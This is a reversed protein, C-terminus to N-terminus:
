VKEMWVEVKENKIKFEKKEGFRQKPEALSIEMHANVKEEIESKFMELKKKLESSCKVFLRIEDLKELGAEKRLQQVNRMLERSYGEAELEETREKNLYVFGNKFEAEQYLSPVEQEVILM